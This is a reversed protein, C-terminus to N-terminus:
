PGGFPEISRSVPKKSLEIIADRGEAWNVALFIAAERFNVSAVM